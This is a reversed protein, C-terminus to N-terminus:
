SAERRVVDEVEDPTYADEGGEPNQIALTLDTLRDCEENAFLAAGPSRYYIKTVLDGRINRFRPVIKFVERVRVRRLEGSCTLRLEDEERLEERGGKLLRLRGFRFGGGKLELVDDYVSVAKIINLVRGDAIHPLLESRLDASVLLRRKVDSPTWGADVRESLALAAAFSVLPAAMSTGTLSGAVWAGTESEYSIIPVKCGPAGIEVFEPGSNSFRESVSHTVAATSVRTRSITLPM